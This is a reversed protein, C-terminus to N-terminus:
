KSYVLELNGTVPNYGPEGRFQPRPRDASATDLDFMGWKFCLASSERKWVEIIVTNWIMNFIATIMFKKFPSIPLLWTLLGVAAFSYLGKTYFEFFRFYFGISEGFYNRIQDTLFISHNLLRLCFNQM